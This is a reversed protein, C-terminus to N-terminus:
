DSGSRARQQHATQRMTEAETTRADASNGESMPQGAGTQPAQEGEELDIRPQRLRALRVGTALVIATIISVGLAVLIPNRADSGAQLAHLTGFLLTGYSLLHVTRWLHEPMRERVLSTCQVAAILWAAIVGNAISTRTLGPVSAVWPILLDGFRFRVFSDFWLSVMHVGLFTMSMGAFLRHLDVLWPITPRRGLLRSSTVVGILISLAASFWTVLAAARTVYWFFQDSM